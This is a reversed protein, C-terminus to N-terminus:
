IDMAIPPAFHFMVMGVVFMVVIAVTSMVVVMFMVMMILMAAATVVMVMRVCVMVIVVTFAAMFVVVMMVVICMAAAALFLSYFLRGGNSCMGLLNVNQFIEAAGVTRGLHFCFDICQLLYFECGNCIGSLLQADGCRYIHM